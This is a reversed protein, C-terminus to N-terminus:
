GVEGRLATVKIDWSYPQDLIGIAKLLGANQYNYIARVAVIPVEPLYRASSSNLGFSQTPIAISDGTSEVYSQIASDFDVEGNEAQGDTLFDPINSEGM